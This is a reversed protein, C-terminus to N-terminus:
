GYNGINPTTVCFSINGGIGVIFLSACAIFLSVLCDHTIRTRYSFMACSPLVSFLTCTLDTYKGRNPQVLTTSCPQLSDGSSAADPPTGPPSHQEVSARPLPPSVRLARIQIRPDTDSRVRRPRSTADLM